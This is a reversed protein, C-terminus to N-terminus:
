QSWSNNGWTLQEAFPDEKASRLFSHATRNNKKKQLLTGLVNVKELAKVM